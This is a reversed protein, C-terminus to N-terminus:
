SGGLIQLPIAVLAMLFGTVVVFGVVANGLWGNTHAGVYHEDNMLVLFPLVLVPLILVTLAMSFLTLRLPDLGLLVLVASLGIALTFVLSFRTGDKPKLNEGWSWGLSQGLLYGMNLAIELAAGLCGIALSAAFLYFGPKGFAPTLVLAVQSFSDAGIRHPQLVMASCVLVGMSVVAGFGMGVSAVLRNMTCDKETWKEEVAGSSYFNLLYPSITAGFISVALFAYRARDHGPASPVLGRLVDTWSPHLRWAAVVFCLTVLGLLAVSNEIADFNGVWLLVWVLFAAPLVWLRLPRGTLLQLAACVGGIEATLVLIDLLLEAVIPGIHFTVGFRERVAGALTHHSVAALRGSMEVLFAVCTAALAIAWLLQFGFRAGAQASTSISGAEIFGGISTVVGLLLRVVNKV